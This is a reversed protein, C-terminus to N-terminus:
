AHRDSLVREAMSGESELQFHIVEAVKEPGDCGSISASTFSLHLFTDDAVKLHM